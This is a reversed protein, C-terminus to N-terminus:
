SEGKYKKLYYAIRIITLVIGLVVLTTELM